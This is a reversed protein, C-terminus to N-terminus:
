GAMLRFIWPRSREADRGRSVVSRWRIRTAEIPERPMPVHDCLQDGDGVYVPAFTRRADPGYVESTEERHHWPQDGIELRRLWKVSTNGEWGPNLMRLPYGQEPRLAEGNQGWAIITDDLAKELPISRSM